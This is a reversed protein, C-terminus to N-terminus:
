KRLSHFESGPHFADAGLGRELHQHACSRELGLALADNVEFDALRIEISGGVDSLRGLASEVLAPSMVTRRLSLRVKAFRNSLVNPLRPANLDARLVHADNGATLGDDEEGNESQDFLTVLHNIRIGADRNEEYCSDEEDAARHHREIKGM